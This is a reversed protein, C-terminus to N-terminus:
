RQLYCRKARQRKQLQWLRKAMPGKQFLRHPFALRDISDLMQGWPRKPRGMGYNRAPLNRWPDRDRIIIMTPQCYDPWAAALALALLVLSTPRRM